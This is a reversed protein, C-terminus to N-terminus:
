NADVHTGLLLKRLPAPIGARVAEDAHLWRQGPADRIELASLCRLRAPRIDLHYHSFTHRFPAETGLLTCRLGLVREAHNALEEDLLAPDAEPLSWLGGWIGQPPRQELLLRGADDEVRLFWTERVPLAKRPKPEPYRTIEGLARAVCSDRVPCEECLPKSRRCVLAGLDMIAQTYDRVRSAPTHTEAHQWLRNLVDTQGPWGAVAHHRALVRKVNGDLIAARQEFAQALIAAATSRGIGPLAMLADLDAPFAGDHMEVVTQAAKHLNRARAYYGLGSWHELVADLPAEALHWVDPFRATFREFYPMVTAVQTQQLMIESLWVRYASRQTHWPLAKRGYQDYWDLLREAFSASATSM